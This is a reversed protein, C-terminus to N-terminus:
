KSSHARKSSDVAAADVSVDLGEAATAAVDDAAAAAAVSVSCRYWVRDFGEVAGTDKADAVASAVGKSAAFDNAATVYKAFCANVSTSVVEM